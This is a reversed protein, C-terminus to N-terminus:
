KTTNYYGKLIALGLVLKIIKHSFYPMKYIRKGLYYCFSIIWQLSYPINLFLKPFKIVQKQLVPSLMSLNGGGYEELRLCHTTLRPFQIRIVQAEPYALISNPFKQIIQYAFDLEEGGYTELQLNLKIQEFITKNIICNGFLLHSYHVADFKQYGNIGRNSHNLYEEFVFDPSQYKITGTFILNKKTQIAKAYHQLFNSTVIMNSQIFILWDGTAHQIGVNTAHVRGKNSELQIPITTFPFKYSQFYEYSDDQSGDDVYIVDLKINNINLQKISPLLEKLTTLSNFGIIIISFNPNM